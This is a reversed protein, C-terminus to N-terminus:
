GTTGKYYAEKAAMYFLTLQKVLWGVAKSPSRWAPFFQVITLNLQWELGKITM